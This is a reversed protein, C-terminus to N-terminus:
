KQWQINVMMKFRGTTNQEKEQVYMYSPFGINELM